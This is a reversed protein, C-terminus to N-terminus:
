KTRIYIYNMCSREGKSDSPTNVLKGAGDAYVWMASSGGGDFRTMNYAGFMEAIRYAEYAKVGMSTWVGGAVDIQRGDVEFLWVKTGAQDIGVFTMPDYKTNNTNTESLSGTDDRGNVMFQYMTSNQTYVPKTEGGVTVNAKIKVADGVKVAAAVEGAPTGTM